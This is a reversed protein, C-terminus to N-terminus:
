SLVGTRKKKVTYMAPGPQTTQPARKRKKMLIVPEPSVHRTGSKAWYYVGKLRSVLRADQGRPDMRRALRRIKKAARANV